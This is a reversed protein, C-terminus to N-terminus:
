NDHGVSQSRTQARPDLYLSRSGITNGSSDFATLTLHDPSPQNYPQVPEPSYELAFGHWGNSLNVLPVTRMDQGNPLSIAVM